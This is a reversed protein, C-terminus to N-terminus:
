VDGQCGYWQSDPHYVGISRWQKIFITVLYVTCTCTNYINM